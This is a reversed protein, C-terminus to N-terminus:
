SASYLPTQMLVRVAGIALFALAVSAILLKRKYLMRWFDLIVQWFDEQGTAPSLYGGLPRYPENAPLQPPGAKVINGAGVSNGGNGSGGRPAGGIANSM